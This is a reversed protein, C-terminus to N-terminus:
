GVAVADREEMQRGCYQCRGTGAVLYVPKGCSPCPPTRRAMSEVLGVTVRRRQAKTLWASGSLVAMAGAAADLQDDHGAGSGYAEAEEWFDSLWAGRILTVNGAEAQASFPGIRAGKDTTPRVGRCSFGRLVHRVYHDIIAAGSAGPEQEIYIPVDVGDAEAVARVFREVEYPTGRMRDVQLWYRGDADLGMLAGATWDPDNGSTAKTSALDWYRVRVLDVPWQDVVAFWERRFYGGQDRVTWDGRLLQERTVPDLQSLSAIYAKRDLYPNDDLTAPIFPRGKAPGEILFRQKVWEHGLGGPNSAARMRLPVGAGELRRLRSFLYLYQTETFQTLEDFCITQFASSQYRYKDNESDLYGFTLTAGTPFRWTYERADWVADSGYLWRAARDLLADPLALDRYTRRLILAAYGPTDVYQLAAMLLADSKGGGAAGGYLAEQHPLLLFAAQKPTPRHPCYPTIRPETLARLRSYDLKPWSGWSLRLGTARTM